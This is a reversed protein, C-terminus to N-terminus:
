GRPHHERHVRILHDRTVHTYIQTTAIDAHGLMAQVARLNAGHELLHTAFSHRLVHPTIRSRIGAKLAMRRLMKWLGQRTMGKNRRAVFLPGTPSSTVRPRAAEMYREILRLTEHAVPVVRRKGGKGTVLLYGAEFNIDEVRLACLESARLGTAYLTHLMAADRLGNREEPRPAALLSEVEEESLMTPLRRSLKPLDVRATPDSPLLHERLAFRFLGRLVSLLRAQSRSSLGADAMRVLLETIDEPRVGQATREREELFSGFRALDSAYAEITNRALGREVRLHNLYADAVEDYTM